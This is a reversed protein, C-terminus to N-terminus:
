PGADSAEQEAARSRVDGFYKKIPVHYVSPIENDRIADNAQKEATLAVDQRDQAAEGRVVDGEFFWSATIEGPTLKGKVKTKNFDVHTAQKDATQGEGRGPGGMGASRQLSIGAKWPGKGGCVACEGQGMCAQCMGSGLANLGANVDNVAAQLADMDAALAELLAMQDDFQDLQGAGSGRGIAAAASALGSSLGQCTQCAGEQSKAMQMLQQRQEKSLQSMKELAKELSEPDLSALKKDMGLKELERELQKRQKALRELQEALKELQKALKERQEDTLNPNSLQREFEKIAERAGSFNGKAMSSTLKKLTEDGSTKLGRLQRRLADLRGFEGESRRRKLEQGLGTLKKIAALRIEEPKAEPPLKIEALADRPVDANKLQKTASKVKDLVQEVAKETEKRQEQKQEDQDRKALAGTLDVEPLAFFTIALLALGGAGWPTRRPTRLPFHEAPKVRAVAEHADRRVCASFGDAADGLALSTSIREKLGAREDVALALQVPRPRRVWWHAAAILLMGGAAFFSLRLLEAAPLAALRHLCVLVVAFLCWAIFAVMLHDLGRNLEIRLRVQRFCRRLRSDM